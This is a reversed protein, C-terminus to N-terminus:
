VMYNIGVHVLWDTLWGILWDCFSSWLSEEKCVNHNTVFVIGYALWSYQLESTKTQLLLSTSSDCHHINTLQHSSYLGLM